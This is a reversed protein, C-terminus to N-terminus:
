RSFSVEARGLQPSNNLCKFRKPTFGLGELPYDVKMKWRSERV